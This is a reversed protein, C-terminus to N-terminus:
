PKKATFRLRRISEQQLKSTTFPPAPNKRVTKKQVKDVTFLQGQARGPDEAGGGREPHRAEGAKKSWNRRL